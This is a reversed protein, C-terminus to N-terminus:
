AELERWSRRKVIDSITSKQVKFQTALETIIGRRGNSEEYHRLINRVQTADLKATPYVRAPENRLIRLVQYYTIQYKEALAYKSLGNGDQYDTRVQQALQETIPRNPMAQASNYGIPRNSRTSPLASLHLLTAALA